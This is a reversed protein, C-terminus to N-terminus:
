VVFIKILDRDPVFDARCVPCKTVLKSCTECLGLHGCVSIAMCSRADMCIVCLLDRNNDSKNKEEGTSSEKKDENKEEIEKEKM